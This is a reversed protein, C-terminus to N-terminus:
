AVAVALAGVPQTTHTPRVSGRTNGSKLLDAFSGKGFRMQVHDGIHSDARHPDAGAESLFPSLTAATSM